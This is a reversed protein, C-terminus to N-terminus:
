RKPQPPPVAGSRSGPAALAEARARILGSFADLAARAPGAAFAGDLAAAGRDLCAVVRACAAAADETDRGDQTADVLDDLRQYAAGLAAGYGSLARRQAPTSTGHLAGALLALRILASTKRDHVRRVRGAPVGNAEGLLDVAQGTLIEAPGVLRSALRAAARPRRSRALAGFAATLLGIGALVALGEGFRAHVSPRERRLPSDDMCPLDDFVLSACHLLEIAAASPLADRWSAECLEAAALTLLPRWRQGGPFVAHEMAASLQPLVPRPSALAGRLAADVAERREAVPDLDRGAASSPATM